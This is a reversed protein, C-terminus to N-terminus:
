QLTVQEQVPNMAAGNRPDIGNIAIGIRTGSPAGSVNIGQSFVGNADATVTYSATNGAQNGVGLISGLIGGISNTSSAAGLTITVRAGPVTHGTITFQRPVTAGDAPSVNTIQGVSSTGAGSTFRWGRNFNGGNSDQGTVRVTHVGPQLPSRPAYSFGTTSRTADNTVDLQDLYIKVTNPNVTGGTYTAEILPRRASVTAGRAPVLNTLNIAGGQANPNPAPTIVQNPNPNTATAGSAVLAVVRNAGDYNVTAGLAQSVFRLPVYTSAGIIFPAVDVTQQQGDVTAQQSGIRLSVNHGRGSANIVGNAYVVSAGLNEFVGRLPVFVRGARETPPPNLNLPNGNLTVSVPGAALAPIALASALLATAGLATLSRTTHSLM